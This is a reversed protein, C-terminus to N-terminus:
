PATEAAQARVADGPHVGPASTLVVQEGVQLTGRVEVRSGDQQGTEVPVLVVRDGRVAWLTTRDGDT